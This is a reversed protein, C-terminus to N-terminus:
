ASLRRIKWDDGTRTFLLRDHLRSPRGQWFEIEAPRVGYGGWHAPRPIPQGDPHLANIRDVEDDLAKRDPLVASQRSAWAGVQSGRPRSAFYKDSAEGSLKTVSGRIRVQRELEPWFFLLAGEPREALQTGKASEYNTFFTLSGDDIGKLLVIRADPRGDAAVTALTMATPEFVEAAVAEDLWRQFTVLADPDVMSEDLGSRAYEKRIDALSPTADQM